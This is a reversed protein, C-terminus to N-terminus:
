SLMSVVAMLTNYITHRVVSLRVRVILQHSLHVFGKTTEWFGGSCPYGAGVSIM